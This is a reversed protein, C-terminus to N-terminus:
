HLSDVNLVQSRVLAVLQQREALERFDILKLLYRQPGPSRSQSLRIAPSALLLESLLCTAMLLEPPENSLPFSQDIIKM